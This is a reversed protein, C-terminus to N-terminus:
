KLYLKIATGMDLGLDEFVKDANVRLDTPIRIQLNSTKM